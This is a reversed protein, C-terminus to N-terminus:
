HHCLPYHEGRHITAPRYEPRELSIFNQIAQRSSPELNLGFGLTQGEEAWSCLRGLLVALQDAYAFGGPVLPVYTIDVVWLRRVDHETCARALLDHVATRLATREGTSLTAGTSITTGSSTTGSSVAM